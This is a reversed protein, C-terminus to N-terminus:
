SFNEFPHGTTTIRERMKIMIKNILLLFMTVHSVSRFATKKVMKEVTLFHFSQLGTLLFVAPANRASFKEFL